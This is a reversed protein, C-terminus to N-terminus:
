YKTASTMELIKFHDRYFYLNQLLEFGGFYCIELNMFIM